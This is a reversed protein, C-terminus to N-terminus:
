QKLIDDYLNDDYTIPRTLFEALWKSYKKSNHAFLLAYQTITSAYAIIQSVVELNSLMVAKPYNQGFYCFCCKSANMEALDDITAGSEILTILDQKLNLNFVYDVGCQEDEQYQNYAAIAMLFTEEDNLVEKNECLYNHVEEGILAFAKKINERNM